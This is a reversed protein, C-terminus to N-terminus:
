EMQCDIGWNVMWHLLSIDAEASRARTKGRM